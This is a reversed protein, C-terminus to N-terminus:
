RLIEFKPYRKPLTNCVIGVKEVYEELVESTYFRCLEDSRTRLEVIFKNYDFVIRPGIDEIAWYTQDTSFTPPFHHLVRFETDELRCRFAAGNDYRPALRVDGHITSRLFSYNGLHRDIDVFFWDLITNVAFYISVEEKPMYKEFIDLMKLIKSYNDINGSEYCDPDFEAYKLLIVDWPIEEEGEQLFSESCCALRGNVERLSYHVHDIPQGNALMCNTAIDAIVESLGEHFNGIDYKCFLREAPLYVKEQKGRLKPSPVGLNMKKM